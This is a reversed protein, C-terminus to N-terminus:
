KGKTTRKKLVTSSATQKKNSAQKINQRECKVEEACKATRKEELTIQNYLNEKAKKIYEALLLENELHAENFEKDIKQDKVTNVITIIVLILQAILTIIVLSLAITALSM